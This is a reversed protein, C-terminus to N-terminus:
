LYKRILAIILAVILGSIISLILIGLAHPKRLLWPRLADVGEPTISVSNQVHDHLVFGMKELRQLLKGGEIDNPNIDELSIIGSSNKDYLAQKCRKLFKLENDSFKM